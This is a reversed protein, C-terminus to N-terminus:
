LVPVQVSRVLQAVLSVVVSFCHFINGGQETRGGFFLSTIKEPLLTKVNDRAVVGATPSFNVHNRFVPLCQNKDFHPKAAVRRASIRGFANCACLLFTYDLCGPMVQGRKLRLRGASKIYDCDVLGALCVIKAPDSICECSVLM